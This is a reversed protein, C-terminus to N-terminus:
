NAATFELRTPRESELKLWVVLDTGNMTRVMGYRLESGRAVQKGNILLKPTTEGWNRIVFAPNLLPSDSSAQLSIHLQSTGSLSQRVLVFARQTSDYGHSQFDSGQSDLKRRPCGHNVV